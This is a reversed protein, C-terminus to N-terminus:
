RLTVQQCWSNSTTVIKVMYTGAPSGQLNVNIKNDPLSNLSSTVVLKGMIDFVSVSVSGSHGPLNITFNGESPNPYITPRLESSNTVPNIGTPASIKRIENSLQDAVYVVGLADVAVGYPGMFEALGAPGGNGSSGNTGNGAYTNIAGNGREIRVVHNSYDAIYLNNDNDIAIETPVNLKALNGYGGDGSYGFVGTGAFTTLIGSRDVKRIVDNGQDVIFVNGATDVAVGKPLKLDAILADSGSTGNGAAGTGAFAVVHNNSDLIKRVVNNQADAVYLNNQKDIAIGTPQNFMATSAPGFDGGYGATGTGAVTSIIGANSIKRIVNNGDDTFFVNGYADVALSTPQNVEAATAPGGDGSYGVAGTGAITTVIGSADIHRIVNNGQDCFYVNGFSGAAIGLPAFCEASAAASGDGTYGRTGTGCYASITQARLEASASLFLVSFALFTNIKFKM